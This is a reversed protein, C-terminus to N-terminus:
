DRVWNLDCTVPFFPIALAPLAHNLVAALGNECASTIRCNSGNAAIQCHVLLTGYSQRTPPFDPM